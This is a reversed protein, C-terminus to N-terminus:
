WLSSSSCHDVLSVRRSRRCRVSNPDFWSTGHMNDAPAGEYICSVRPNLLHQFLWWSANFFSPFLSLSLSLSLSFSLSFSRLIFLSVYMSIGLVSLSSLRSHWILPLLTTNGFTPEVMTHRCMPDSKASVLWQWIDTRGYCPSV